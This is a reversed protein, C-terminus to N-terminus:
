GGLLTNKGLNLMNDDIGSPGTLLTSSSSGAVPGGAAQQGGRRVPQAPNRVSQATPPTPAAAPAQPAKPSSFLAKTAGLTAVNLASGLIDPTCM